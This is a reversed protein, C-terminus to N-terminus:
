PKVPKGTLWAIFAGSVTSAIICVTLMPAPLTVGSAGIGALAGSVLFVLGAYNALKDKTKAKMYISKITVLNFDGSTEMHEDGHM